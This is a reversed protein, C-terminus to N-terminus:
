RSPAGQPLLRPRKRATVDEARGFLAIAIWVLVRGIAFMFWQSEPTLWKM